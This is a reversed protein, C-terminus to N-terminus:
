AAASNVTWEPFFPQLEGGDIVARRIPDGFRQAFAQWQDEYDADRNMVRPDHAAREAVTAKDVGAAADAIAEPSMPHGVFDLVAGVAAVTDRKMQEYRITLQQTRPRHLWHRLHLRYITSWLEVLHEDFPDGEYFKIQSFVTPVPDRYLYVVRQSRCSFDLDHSHNLLFDRRRHDYFSRPLLPRDTARELMMRLWHSGTRPFSVLWRSRPDERFAVREATDDRRLRRILADLM